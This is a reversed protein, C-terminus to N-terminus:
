QLGGAYALIQDGLISFRDFWVPDVQSILSGNNQIRLLAMDLPVKMLIPLNRKLCYEEIIDDNGDSRNIIVAVPIHLVDLVDVAVSLDHLGFPTPETVLVCLSTDDVTEIFPCATGPPADLLVLSDDKIQDRVAHIVATTRVDGERLRGTVLTLSDTLNCTEICGVLAPNEELAEHPCVRFCGGCSHCLQPFFLVRDKLVTLAGFRCFEGCAGCYLCANEDVHPVIVHIERIQPICTFFIGMNPEEVDCDAITIKKSQSLVYGLNSSITTKGTGGKGSAIVIQM